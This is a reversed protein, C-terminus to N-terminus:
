KVWKEWGVPQTWAEQNQAEGAAPNAMKKDSRIWARVYLEKGTLVYSAEEGQVSKLVKGVDASYKTVPRVIKGDPTPTSATTTAADYDHQTGIFDITCHAGAAPEVAVTLSRKAPNYEVRRLVVGTSAYYDGRNMASAIANAELSKAHVMVFGRGPNAQHPGFTQYNHTDDSAICLLPPQRYKAIRLTNAADWLQSASLHSKDGLSRIGPSANCIEFHRTEISQALDEASIPYDPWTPHNMQAVMPRAARVSQRQIAEIHLRMTGVASDGKGSALSDVMNLGCAHVQHEKWNTNLEQGQILLFRNPDNVARRVEDFTKLRVQAKEGDGRTVVWGDGFRKRCKQITAEPIPRKKDHITKWEEGRMLRSHDTLVLFDYGHSKYWDAVMEPFEDGDSWFSHCHTNGRFWKAPASATTESTTAGTAISAPTSACDDAATLVGVMSLLVASVVFASLFRRMIHGQASTAHYSSSFPWRENHLSGRSPALVGLGWGSLTKLM